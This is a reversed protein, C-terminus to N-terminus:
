LLPPARLVGRLALAAGAWAAAMGVGVGALWPWASLTLRFDFVFSSLAWGVASAGAAALLGALGGVALVERRQARALQNRTACLARLVAAERVREDRTATLAASLVLVGVALTFVFLLQVAMVVQDLVSQLQ